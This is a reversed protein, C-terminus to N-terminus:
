ADGGGIVKRIKTRCEWVVEEWQHSEIDDLMKVVDSLAARYAENEAIAAALEEGKIRSVELASAHNAELEAIRAKLTAVDDPAADPAKSILQSYKEQRLDAEALAIRSALIVAAGAAFPDTHTPDDPLIKSLNEYRDLMNAGKASLCFHGVKDDAILYHKHVMELGFQTNIPHPESRFWALYDAERQTLQEM